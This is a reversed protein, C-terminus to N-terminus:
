AALFATVADRSATSSPDSFENGFEIRGLHALEVSLDDMNRGEAAYERLMPFVEYIIRNAFRTPWDPGPECMFYSQGLRIREDLVIKSVQDFLHSAKEGLKSMGRVDYYQQIVDRDPPVDFFRFRRRIAYDVLAISRDATNMTGLLLLNPPVALLSGIGAGGAVPPPVQLHVAQGRHSPDIAVILDGLVSALNCRNVEELILLTPRDPRASAAACMELMVRDVSDISSGTPQSTLSRGRVFDDYTYGSHLQVREWVLPLQRFWETNIAEIFNTGGLGVMKSLQFPSVDEALALAECVRQTIFSKGTGPPGQLILNPSDRLQEIVEQVLLEISPGTKIAVKPTPPGDVPVIELGPFFSKLRVGSSTGSKEIVKTIQWTGHEDKEVLAVADFGGDPPSLRELCNSVATANQDSGSLVVFGVDFRQSRAKGQWLRNKLQWAEQPQYIQIKQPDLDGRSIVDAIFSDATM